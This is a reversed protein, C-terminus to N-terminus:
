VVGANREIRRRAEPFCRGCTDQWREAPFDSITHPAFGFEWTCASPWYRPERTALSVLHCCGTTTNTVYKPTQKKAQDAAVAIAVEKELLAKTNSDMKALKNKMSALDDTLAKIVEGLSNVTELERVRETIDKLPALRAYHLVMASAWRAILQIRYLDLRMGALWVAGTSRWSHRDFRKQGAATLIPEGLARALQEILLLM